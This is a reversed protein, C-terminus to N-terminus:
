EGHLEFWSGISYYSTSTIIKINTVVSNNAWYGELSLKFGITADSYLTGQNSEWSTYSDNTFLDSFNIKGLQFIQNSMSLCHRLSSWVGGTSSGAYHSAVRYNANTVDSNFSINSYNLTTHSTKKRCEIWVYRLGLNTYPLLDFEITNTTAGIVEVRALLSPSGSGFSRMGGKAPLSLSARLGGRMM